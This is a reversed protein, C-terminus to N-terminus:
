CPLAGAARSPAPEPEPPRSGAGQSWRHFQQSGGLQPGRREARSGGAKQCRTIHPGQAQPVAWSSPRLVFTSTTAPPSLWMGCGGARRAAGGMTGAGLSRPADPSQTDQPSETDESDGHSTPPRRQPQSQSVPPFLDRGETPEWPGLRADLQGRHSFGDTCPTQPRSGPGLPTSLMQLGVPSAWLWM